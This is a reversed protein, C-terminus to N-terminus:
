EPALEEHLLRYENGVLWTEDDEKLLRCLIPMWGIMVFSGRGVSLELVAALM